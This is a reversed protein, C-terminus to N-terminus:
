VSQAGPDFRYTTTGTPKGEAKIPEGPDRVKKRPAAEEYDVNICEEVEWFKEGDERLKELVQFDEDDFIGDDTVHEPSSEIGSEDPGEEEFDELAEQVLREKEEETLGDFPALMKMTELQAGKSPISQWSDKGNREQAVM